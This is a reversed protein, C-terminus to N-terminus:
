QAYIRVPLSSQGGVQITFELYPQPAFFEILPIRFNVQTVGGVLGPAPGGYFVEASVGM